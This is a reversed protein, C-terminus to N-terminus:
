CFVCLAKSLKLRSVRLVCLAEPEEPVCCLETCLVCCLQGETCLAEPAEPVCCGETCLAEPVSCGETCNTTFSFVYMLSFTFGVSCRSCSM